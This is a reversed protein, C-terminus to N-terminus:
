EEEKVEYYDFSGYDDEYGMDEDMIIQLIQERSPKATFRRHLVCMEEMEREVEICYLKKEM